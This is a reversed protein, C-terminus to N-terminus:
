DAVSKFDGFLKFAKVFPPKITPAHAKINKRERLKLQEGFHELAKSEEDVYQKLLKADSSSLHFVNADVKAAAVRAWIASAKEYSGQLARMDEDTLTGPKQAVSVIAEMQSHFETLRDLYYDDLAIQHRLTLMIGRYAELQAHSNKFDGADAYENAKDVLADVRYIAEHWESQKDVEGSNKQKFIEWQHRFLKVAIVTSQTDEPSGTLSLAPVYARDLQAMDYFAGPTCGLALLTLACLAIQLAARVQSM